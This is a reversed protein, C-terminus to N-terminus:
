ALAAATSPKSARLRREFALRDSFGNAKEEPWSEPAVGELNGGISVSWDGFEWGAGYLATCDEPIPKELKHKPISLAYNMDFNM